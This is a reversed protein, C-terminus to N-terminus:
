VMTQGFVFPELKLIPTIQDNFVCQAIRLSSLQGFCNIADIGLFAFLLFNVWMLPNVFDVKHSSITYKNVQYIM